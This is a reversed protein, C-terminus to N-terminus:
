GDVLARFAPDDHLSAFDADDLFVRPAVGAALALRVLELAPGRQGLLAYMAAANGLFLAETADAKSRQVERHLRRRGEELRGASAFAAIVNAVVLRRAADSAFHEMRDAGREWLDIAVVPQGAHIAGIVGNTLLHPNVPVDSLADRVFALLDEHRGLRLLALSVWAMPRSALPRASQLEGRRALVAAWDSCRGLAELEAGLRAAVRGAARLREGDSDRREALARSWEGEGLVWEVAELAPGFLAELVQDVRADFHGWSGEGPVLRTRIDLADRELAESATDVFLRALDADARLRDSLGEAAWQRVQSAGHQGRAVTARLAALPVTQEDWGHAAVVEDLHAGQDVEHGLDNSCVFAGFAAVYRRDSLALRLAARDAAHREDSWWLVAHDRNFATVAAVFAALRDPAEALARSLRADSISRSRGMRLRPDSPGPEVGPEYARLAQAM